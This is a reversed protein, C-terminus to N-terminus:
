SERGGVDGAADAEGLLDGLSMTITEEVPVPVIEKGEWM